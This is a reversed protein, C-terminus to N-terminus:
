YPPSSSREGQLQPSSQGINLQNMPCLYGLAHQFFVAEEIAPLVVEVLPPIRGANAQTGRDLSDVLGRQVSDVPVELCVILNEAMNLDAHPYFGACDNLLRM